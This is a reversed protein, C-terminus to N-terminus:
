ELGMHRENGYRTGSPFVEYEHTCMIINYNYNCACVCLSACMCLCVCVHICQLQSQLCHLMTAIPLFTEVFM